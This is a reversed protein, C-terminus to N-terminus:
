GIATVGLKIGSLAGIGVPSCKCYGKINSDTNETIVITIQDTFNITDKLIINLSGEYGWRRNERRQLEVDLLLKTAKFGLNLNINFVKEEYASTPFDYVKTSLTAIKKYQGVMGEMKNAVDSLNEAQEGGLEVLKNDIQTAVTKANEKQKNTNNITDTLSM